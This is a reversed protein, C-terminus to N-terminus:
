KSRAAQRLMNVAEEKSKCIHDNWDVIGTVSIIGTAVSKSLFRAIREIAPIHCIGLTATFGGLICVEGYRSYAGQCWGNRDIYDAVDYIIKGDADLDWKENALM